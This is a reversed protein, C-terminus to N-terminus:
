RGSSAAAPSTTCRARVCPSSPPRAIRPASAASPSGCARWCRRVGADAARGGVPRRGGAATSSSCRGGRSRRSGARCSRVRATLTVNVREGARLRVRPPDATVSVGAIGESEAIADVDIRRSSINRIAIRRVATWGAEDAVGFSITPRSPSPERGRECGRRRGDRRGAGCARRRPDPRRHGVLAGKLAAADLGPADARAGGGRRRRLGGVREHRQDVRLARHSGRQPGSRLHRARRRGRGARAQDRRRLCPRTLLVTRSARPPREPELRARRALRTVDVGRALASRPRPLRRRRCASSPFTARPRRPGLAGAPVLGDVLIAATGAAAAERVSDPLGEARALLTARGAVVSFGREDFYRGLPASALGPASTAAAAPRRSRSRSPPAAAGGLPVERDLLVSLGARLVVRVNATEARLDAAAVTLAAPAGGPGGISGYGPGAPGENGAPVVVLTDLRAAGEIARALPGDDFAAFPETVGVVAVRAADLSSGDRTRTSRASSAPSCSTPAATSRSAATPTRSGAPSASRCSPRARPSAASGARGAAVPSCARSSRGTGSSARRSTPIRRSRARPRGSRARRHRRCGAASTRTRPTSAPTSSPSRSERATSAPRARPRPARGSGQAFAPEAAGELLALGSLGGARSLRRGRGDDRELLALARADIPAAFGNFTRTYVFDPVLRIGERSLKAAIQKQGALSAATWHRM